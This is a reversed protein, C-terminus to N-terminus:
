QTVPRFAKAYFPWPLFIFLEPTFPPRETERALYDNKLQSFNMLTTFIKSIRKEYLTCGPRRHLKKEKLEPFVDKKLSWVKWFFRRFPALVSAKFPRPRSALLHLPKSGPSLLRLYIGVWCILPIFYLIASRIAIGILILCERIYIRDFSLFKNFGPAIDSCSFSITNQLKFERFGEPTQKSESERKRKNSQKKQGKKM